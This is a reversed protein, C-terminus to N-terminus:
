TSIKTLKKPLAAILLLLCSFSLATSFFFTMASDSSFNAGILSSWWPSVALCIEMGVFSLVFLLIAKNGLRRDLFASEVYWVILALSIVGILVLHLYAITVPRLEYALQAVSPLASLLQLISKIAFSIIMIMMIYCSTRHFTQKIENTNATLLRTLIGVAFLQALAALGGIINYVFGPQVWLTSLLYAPICAYALILGIRKVDRTSFDIQKGEFLQFILSLIGFLFFGNYQFHLYFYISFYYWHSQGIGASMLYGLSFPGATSIVFFTLAVKAYWASISTTHRTKQFFKIVFALAILTHLTSFLISFIGYGQMPFSVLMGIVLAQLVIFLTKFVSQQSAEVYYFVFGIFLANFIWGLFMIHSHGHLVYMYNTGATPSVFQWRLFLGLLSGVFLFILPIKVFRQM